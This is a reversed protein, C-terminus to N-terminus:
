NQEDKFFHMNAEDPTALRGMVECVLGSRRKGLKSLCFGDVNLCFLQDNFRGRNSMKLDIRYFASLTKVPHATAIVSKKELLSSNIM